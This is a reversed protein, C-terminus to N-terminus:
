WFFDYIVDVVEGSYIDVLLADDYYRVWRYNGYAEPLRYQWPDNIWYRNSFFLSDLYFGISLRSYRYNNYPSYYRGLHYVNRNHNRYYSWNYRSNNRWDRNWSHGDNRGNRTWSRGDNDRHGDRTWSRGDNDRHSDRTWNRDNNDSRTRDRYTSNRQPDAYTENRHGTWTQRSTTTAPAQNRDGWSQRSTTTTRGQNWDRGSRAQATTDVRGQNWDRGSRAQATASGAGRWQQTAQPAARREMPAARPRAQRAESREPRQVPARAERDYGHEGAQRGPREAASATAPLAFSALALALASVGGRHLITKLNM